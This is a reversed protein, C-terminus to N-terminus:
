EEAPEAAFAPEEEQKRPASAAILQDINDYVDEFTMDQSIIPICHEPIDVKYVAEELMASLNDTNKLVEKKFNKYLEIAEKDIERETIVPYTVIGELYPLREREQSKSVVMEESLYIGSIIRRRDNAMSIIADYSLKDNPDYAELIINNKAVAIGVALKSRENWILNLVQLLKRMDYKGYDKDSMDIVEDVFDANAVLKNIESKKETKTIKTFYASNFKSKTENMLTNLKNNLQFARKLNM